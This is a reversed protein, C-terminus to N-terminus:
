KDTPEGMEFYVGGWLGTREEEIATNRCFSKVPCTNCLDKMSPRINVDKEYESFFLEPNMDKCLAFEEWNKM